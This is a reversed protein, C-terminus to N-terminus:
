TEILRMCNQVIFQATRHKYVFPYRLIAVVMDVYKKFNVILLASQKKLNDM